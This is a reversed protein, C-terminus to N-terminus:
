PKKRRESERSYRANRDSRRVRKREPEEKDSARNRTEEKAKKQQVCVRSLSGIITIVILTSLGLTLSLVVNTKTESKKSPENTKDVKHDRKTITTAWM